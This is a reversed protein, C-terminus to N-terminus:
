TSRRFPRAAITPKTKATKISANVPSPTKVQNPRRYPQRHSPNLTLIEEIIPDNLAAM